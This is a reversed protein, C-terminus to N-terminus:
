KKKPTWLLCDAAGGMMLGALLGYTPSRFIMLGLLFVGAFVGLDVLYRM